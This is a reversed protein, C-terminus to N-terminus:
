RREGLPLPRAGLGRFVRPGLDLRFPALKDAKTDRGLLYSASTQGEGGSWRYLTNFAILPVFLQRGALEFVQVSARPAVVQTRLTVRQLPPIADLREGAGVPRAIFAGIEEDQAPGANFISAEVLVARAPANGSNFLELEFEVAVQHDEVICRLPQIGLDVWPRLRTAVIGSGADLRPPPAPPAPPIRTSPPEPPTPAPPARPAKPAPEPAVYAEVHVGGAFAHRQRNRWFLLAVGCALVCLVLFWPWLLLRHSDTLPVATPLPALAAPAASSAPPTVGSMVPAEVPAHVAPPAIRAAPAIVPLAPASPSPAPKARHAANVPAAASGGVPAGAPAQDATTSAPAAPRSAPAAPRSAPEDAPKTVNGSLSFNQLDRPGVADTAPPPGNTQPDTSQGFAAAPGLVLAAAWIAVALRRGGSM